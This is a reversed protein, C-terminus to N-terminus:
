YYDGNQISKLQPYVDFWYVGIAVIGILWIFNSMLVVVITSAVLIGFWHWKPRRDGAVFADHRTAAIVCAGAIGFAAIALRVGLMIIGMITFVTGM